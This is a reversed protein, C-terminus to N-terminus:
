PRRVGHHFGHVGVGIGGEVDGTHLLSSGAFVRATAHAGIPLEAAAHVEVIGDISGDSRHDRRDLSGFWRMGATTDISWRVGHVEHSAGLAFAEQAVVDASRTPDGGLGRADAGVGIRGSTIGGESIEVAGFIWRGGLGLRLRGGLTTARALAHAILDVDAFARLSTDACDPQGHDFLCDFIKTDTGGGGHHDLFDLACIGASGCDAHAGPALLLIALFTVFIPRM